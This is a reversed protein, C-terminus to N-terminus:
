QGDQRYCYGNFPNTYTWDLKDAQSQILVRVGALETFKRGDVALYKRGNNEIVDDGDVPSPLIYDKGDYDRYIPEIVVGKTQYVVEGKPFIVNGKKDGIQWEQIM